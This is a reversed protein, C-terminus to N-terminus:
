EAEKWIALVFDGTTDTTSLTIEGHATITAESTVDANTLLDGSVHRVNILTAGPDLGDGFGRLPTTASGGRASAAGIPTPYGQLVPM